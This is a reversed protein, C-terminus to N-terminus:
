PLAIHSQHTFCSPPLTLSNLDADNKFIGFIATGSGSLSAYIAGAEYLSQKIAALQPFRPFLTKEFDNEISDKWSSIEHELLHKLETRGEMPEALHYAEATSIGFPPVVLLLRFQKRCAPIPVLRDGKGYGICAEKQTFFACDSGIRSAMRCIDESSIGLSFERNLGTLTYAADASGGGLGSQMPIKKLLHICCPPRKGNLKRDILTRAKLVLNDQDSGPIELGDCIFRDRTDPTIELIDCLSPVKFFSLELDHYGDSRKRM